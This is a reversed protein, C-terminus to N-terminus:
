KESPAGMASPNHNTDTELLNYSEFTWNPDIHYGYMQVLPNDIIPNNRESSQNVPLKKEKQGQMKRHHNSYTNPNSNPNVQTNTNPSVQSM